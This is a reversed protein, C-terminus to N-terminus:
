MEMAKDGFQGYLMMAAIIFPKYSAQIYTQRKYKAFVGAAVKGQKCSVGTIDAPLCHMYLAQGKSTTQMLKESCSWNKHKSNQALAQKELKEYAKAEGKELLKTRKQMIGYGAWSKPYVVQAGAFGQAMDHVIRFKGGSKKAQAAAYAEIEGILEYGKPYALTLDVGFRSLLGIVGQPVSLPKGYSPSYAWSVTIKKGKLKKVGGFYRALHAMDSLAQTPHDEDSQLNILAPRYGLVKHKYGWDLATQM